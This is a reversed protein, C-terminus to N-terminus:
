GAVMRTRDSWETRYIAQRSVGYESALKAASEGARKRELIRVRVPDSLKGYRRGDNPLQGIRAYRDRRWQRVLHAADPYVLVLGLAVVPRLHTRRTLLHSLVTYHVGLIEAMAITGVRLTEMKERIYGIVIQSSDTGTEM